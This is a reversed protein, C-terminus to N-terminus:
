SNEQPVIKEALLYVRSGPQNPWRSEPNPDAARGNEIANQVRPAFYAMDPNTKNYGGLLNLLELSVCTRDGTKRNELFEALVNAPYSALDRIHLLLWIEFAPNSVALYYQKQLCQQAVFALKQRWRDVDIVLWLLDYGKRLKYESRFADLTLIIKEPESGPLLHDLVEVHVRPNKYYDKLGDFYIKETKEGEAAIIILRADRLGSKRKFDRKGPM